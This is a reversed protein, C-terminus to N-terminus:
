FNRGITQVFSSIEIRRSGADRHLRRAPVATFSDTYTLTGDFDFAVIKSVPSEATGAPTESRTEPLMPLGTDVLNARRVRKLAKIGCKKDWIFRLLACNSGALSNLGV